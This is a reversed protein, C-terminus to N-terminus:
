PPPHLDRRGVRRVVTIALFAEPNPCAALPAGPPVAGGPKALLCAPCSTPLWNEKADPLAAIRAKHADEPDRPGNVAQQGVVVEPQTRQPSPESQPARNPECWYNSGCPEEFASGECGSAHCAASRSHTTGPERVRRERLLGIVEACRPVRWGCARSCAVSVRPRSTGRPVHREQAQVPTMGREVFACALSLDKMSETQALDADAKRRYRCVMNFTQAHRIRM